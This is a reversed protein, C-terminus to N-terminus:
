QFLLFLVKLDGPDTRFSTEHADGEAVAERRRHM